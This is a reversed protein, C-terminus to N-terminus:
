RPTRGRTYGLAIYQDIYQKKIKKNGFDKHTIWCTGYQSNGKGSQKKSNINGIYKKTEDTHKKGRFPNIGGNLYNTKHTESIKRKTEITHKKGWSAILNEGGFGLKGNNGYLNKETKNIHDFGGLGGRRLNYVDERSLFEETVLEKERAYMSEIDQFTELIDKRFNDTGYKEMARKIVKGSGMYGDNINKTKHVGVYIKNNV